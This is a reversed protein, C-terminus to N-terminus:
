IFGQVESQSLKHVDTQLYYCPIRTLTIGTKITLSIDKEKYLSRLILRVFALTPSRSIKM